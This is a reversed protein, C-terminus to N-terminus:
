GGHAHPTGVRRTGPGGLPHDSSRGAGLEGFAARDGSAPGAGGGRREPDRSGGPDSAERAGAPADAGVASGGSEGLPDGVGRTALAGTRGLPDGAHTRAM